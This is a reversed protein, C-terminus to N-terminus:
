FLLEVKMYYKRTMLLMGQRPRPLSGSLLHVAFQLEELLIPSPLLLPLLLSALPLPLLAAQRAKGAECMVIVVPLSGWEPVTLGETVCGTSISASLGVSLVWCDLTAWFPFAVNNQAQIM